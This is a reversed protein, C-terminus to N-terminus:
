NYWSELLEQAEEFDIRERWRVIEREIRNKQRLYKIGYVLPLLSRLYEIRKQMYPIMSGVGGWHSPELPLREFIHPDSNLSLFKALAKKRRESSLEEIASFLDVMREEDLNYREIIHDIWLDQKAITEPQSKESALLVSVSVQRKWDVANRNKEHLYNFVDDALDMFNETNWITTLRTDHSFYGLHSLADSDLYKYLFAPDASIITQLLVGKYDCLELCSIGKLYVEELLLIEGSFMELIANAEKKEKQNLISFAYLSFVFPSEDYHSLIIRIAQIIVKTEVAEYKHLLDVTRYPSSKMALDPTDLYCLLDSAWQTSIEQEPMFAYFFWLWVNQQNYKHRTILKKVESVSEIEFLKELIRGACIKYPTDARMYTDILYLYLQQRNELEEFVYGLGVGLTREEKDFTQISELCIQILYDIDAVTYGEVLKYIREKHRQVGKEYGASYDESRHSVLASYIKYKESNLFPALIDLACYDIHKAVQKIRAAIVCHFLNEPQFLSFFKLIEEFEARMVDLATDVGCHPMGYRYLIDEIKAQMNGHRYIKYLQALLMKRYELVPRDPPLSLTYISVTNHRGGETKSVDLKLFQGAVCVFLFLLNTDEPAAEVADCLSKVVMRQTSYGFLPSELNVEFRGAFISYFQEFLDPRKQYYLLLLDLATPLEPHDGFNGLIQLTDDSVNKDPREKKLSLTQVDFPHYSEQEIYEQLLLLTQTPRVMHFAKLFPLFEEVNSELKDWVLNIQAEVYKKVNQDSFVNLLINCAEITRSKNIQFCTEIMTSLPIIKEEIFVYKILFNSFSQDSIRAAEDNCLDVIEARHLLKLDSTFDSSSIGAVEFIPALKELHKLHIARVFAIIGASCVGTDSEVLANLQKSYYNHYLASADQIAALSESEAALKGALMALRANGEAIAVIRDTYVRNTIGYCTEMLKRIDDDSFTLIKITEPKIVEMVSQMVQKRAYDRVTLILKSIYRLGVAVRPLYDLVHHLGSLENADDVLVLYEKGEEIASVLDEYLQLNNNKIVLVTYGKEEALQRCLELAFRTKGVGAPGAILLVDNDHLASKAKELEKERFLFETGLPASMKNADHRAVFMDLPLIQGSDISIGFFDQALIPCERFIDNGLQDLGILTLVVDREECYQRLHQDDGAGLRGYTHCYIIEAIDKPSVGTKKSDFCKDIDEMAKKLFDTKQTTYMVFVYKNEATLFYTDPNGKATKDTGTNMGLSYVNRYGKYSLYADCLNQFAGGDMQNIRNKIDTLKSM